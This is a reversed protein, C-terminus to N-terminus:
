EAAAAQDASELVGLKRRTAMRFNKGMSGTGRNDVVVILYELRPESPLWLNFDIDFGKSVFQSGPGGYCYFLVPYKTKGSEDFNPPRIERYNLTAGNIEITGYVSRPLDIKQLKKRLEHNDELLIRFNPDRTSYVYENPIEPGNYSLQFYKAMSSFSASYTGERSPDALSALDQGSLHIRYLHREIPSNKTSLFYRCIIVKHLLALYLLNTAEDFAAINTVEWRGGTIYRPTSVNPPSFYGLHNYGDRDVIDIYGDDPRGNSEDKPIYHM